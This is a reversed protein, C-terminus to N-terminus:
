KTMEETQEVEVDNVKVNELHKYFNVIPQMVPITGDKTEVDKTTYYGELQILAGKKSLKELREADKNWLAFHLFDTIKKGEKDKYDRDIAVTINAVKNGSELEKIEPDKTLRGVICFKNM